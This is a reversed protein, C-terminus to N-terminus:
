SPLMLMQQNINWTRIYLFYIVLKGLKNGNLNHFSRKRTTLFARKTTLLQERTGFCSSKSTLINPFHSSQTGSEHMHLTIKILIGQTSRAPHRPSLVPRADQEGPILVFLHEAEDSGFALHTHLAYRTAECTIWVQLNRIYRQINSNDTSILGIICTTISTKVSLRVKWPLDDIIHTEIIDKM